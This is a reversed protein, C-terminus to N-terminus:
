FLRRPAEPLYHAFLQGVGSDPFAAYVDWAKETSGQERKDANARPNEALYSV